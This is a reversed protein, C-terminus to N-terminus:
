DPRRLARAWLTITDLNSSLGYLFLFTIVLTLTKLRSHCHCESQVYCYSKLFFFISSIFPIFTFNTQHVQLMASFLRDIFSTWARGMLSTRYWDSPQVPVDQLLTNFVQQYNKGHTIMYHKRPRGDRGVEIKPDYTFLLAVIESLYFVIIQFLYSFIHEFYM